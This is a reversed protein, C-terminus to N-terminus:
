SPSLKFKDDNRGTDKTELLTTIWASLSVDELKSNVMRPECTTRDFTSDSFLLFHKGYHSIRLARDMVKSQYIELIRGQLSSSNTVYVLGNLRTQEAYKRLKKHLRAKSKFTREIEFAVAIKRCPAQAEQRLLIDPLLDRGEARSLLLNQAEPKSAFQFDRQVKATPFFLRLYETWIACQESHLLEAHRFHPSSLAAETTNLIEAAQRLARPNQGIQHFVRRTIQDHRRALIGRRYLRALVDRLSRRDSQRTLCAELGTITMPGHEALIRLLDRRREYSKAKVPDVSLGM